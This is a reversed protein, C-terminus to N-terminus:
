PIPECRRAGPPRRLEARWVEAGSRDDLAIASDKIGVFILIQPDRPM